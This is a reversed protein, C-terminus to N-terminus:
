GCRRVCIPLSPCKVPPAAHEHQENEDEEAGQVRATGALALGAVVVALCSWWGYSKM